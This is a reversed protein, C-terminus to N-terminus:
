QPPYYKKDDFKRKLLPSENGNKIAEEWIEVADETKGSLFLADGLQELIAGNFTDNALAKLFADKAESYKKQKMLLEGLQQNLLISKPSFTLGKKIINMGEDLQNDEALLQARDAYVHVTGEYTDLAQNFYFDGESDNGQRFNMDGLHYLFESQLPPDKVVLDKGLFLWEEALNYAKNEKAAIGTMLYLIPQAPFLSIAEEGNEQMRKYDKINKQSELLYLWADFSNPNLDVAQQYELVAQDHDNLVVWYNGYLEHYDSNNKAMDSIISFLNGIEKRMLKFDRQGTETFPLMGGLIATKRELDVDQNKFGVQLNQFAANLRDQRLHIDALMLYAQGYNPSEAIVEQVLKESAIMNNRQLYLEAVMIKAEPQNGNGEIFHILENEAAEKDGNESHLDYKTFSVEPTPGTEVEIENLMAIAQDIRGSRILAETYTYKLEINKEAEIITQYLDATKAFDNRAYYIHALRLTYWKNEPRLEYASQAFFLAKEENGTKEYLDSLAFHVAPNNAEMSRCREFLTIANEYHGIMKELNAEHFITKFAKRQTYINGQSVEEANKCASLGFGFILLVFFTHHAIHRLKYIM